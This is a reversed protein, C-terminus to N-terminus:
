NYPSWTIKLFSVLSIKAYRIEFLIGDSSTLRTRNGLTNIQKIELLPSQLFLLRFSHSCLCVFAMVLVIIRQARNRLLVNARMLRCQLM